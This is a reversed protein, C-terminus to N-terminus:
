PLRSRDLIRWINLKIVNSLRVFSLLYISCEHVGYFFLLFVTFVHEVEDTKIPVWIVFTLEFLYMQCDYKLGGKSQPLRAGTKRFNQFFGVSNSRLSNTPNWSQSFLPDAFLGPSANKTEKKPLAFFFFYFDFVQFKLGSVFCCILFILVKQFQNWSLLWVMLFRIVSVGLFWFCM